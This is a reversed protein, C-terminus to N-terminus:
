LSWILFWLIPPSPLSPVHTHVKLRLFQLSFLGTTTTTTPQTGGTSMVVFRWAGNFSLFKSLLEAAETNCPSQDMLNTLATWHLLVPTILLSVIKTFNVLKRKMICPSKHTSSETPASPMCCTPTRSAWVSLHAARWIILSKESIVDYYRWWNSSFSNLFPFFCHKCVFIVWNFFQCHPMIVCLSSKTSIKWLSTRLAHYESEAESPESDIGLVNVSTCREGECRKTTFIFCSVGPSKVPLHKIVTKQLM